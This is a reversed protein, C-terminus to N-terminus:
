GIPEAVALPTERDGQWPSADEKGITAAGNRCFAFDKRIKFSKAL